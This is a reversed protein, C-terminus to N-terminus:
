SLEGDLPSAEDPLKPAPPVWARIPQLVLTYFEEVATTVSPIFAGKVGSRKTGM